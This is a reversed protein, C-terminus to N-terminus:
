GARRRGCSPMLSLGPDLDAYGVEEGRSHLDSAESMNSYEDGLTGLVVM